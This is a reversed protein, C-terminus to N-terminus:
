ALGGQEPPVSVTAVDHPDLDFLDRLAQAYDGSAGSVALEKMRVSPAHLLKEVVRHVTLQVEAREEESLSPARQELRVLEAAVVDAARSRLAAVTPAVSKARRGALFAGVEGVVLDEVAQVPPATSSDDLLQGVERLGVLTIGALHGVEPDVDRPLALDVYVQHRGSRATQAATV